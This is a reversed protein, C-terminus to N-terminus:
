LLPILKPIFILLGIIAACIALLLVAGAALDKAQGILKQQGPSVFDALHEIASNIAEAALVSGIAFLVAIWESVSIELVVGAIIVIIAVTAHIRANREQKFLLSIGTFAYRFSRISTKFSFPTNQM